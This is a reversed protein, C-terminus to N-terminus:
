GATSPSSTRCSSPSISPSRPSPASRRPTRWTGGRMMSQRRDVVSHTCGVPRFRSVGRRLACPAAPLQRVLRVTWVQAPREPAGSANPRTRARSSWRDETPDDDLVYPGVRRRRALERRCWPPAADDPTLPEVDIRLLRVARAAADQAAVVVRGTGPRISTRRGARRHYRVMVEAAVDDHVRAVGAVVSRTGLHLLVSTLGLAEDGPVFRPRDRTRLRVARRAGRGARDPRVRLRLGARRGAPHSSFLPNEAQHQGHAAVHVVDARAMAAVLGDQSADVGISVSAGQWHAAVAHAEEESRALGPGAFVSVQPAADGRGASSASLWSSGSPAVMVPRGRFSPLSGWPLMALVGTPVIVAREDAFGVPGILRADLEALTRRLSAHITDVLAGPLHGNAIVDLDARVRRALETIEGARGLDHVRAGRDGMSLVHLSDGVQLFCALSADGEVLGALIEAAKAPRDM